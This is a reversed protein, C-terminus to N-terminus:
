RTGRTVGRLRLYGALQNSRSDLERYALRRDGDILAIADPSRAAATAFYGHVTLPFHGFTPHHPPGHHDSRCPPAAESESRDCAHGRDADRAPEPTDGTAPSRARDRGRSYPPM